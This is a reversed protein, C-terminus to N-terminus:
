EDKEFLVELVKTADPGQHTPQIYHGLTVADTTHGLQEKAADVGMTNRLLTAVAKRFDRPSWEAYDTGSLADRWIRRLNHPWRYTGASSPFVIENYAHVRRRTLINAAPQPLKLTRISRSTKPHGQLKLKGDTGVILTKSITLTTPTADLNVDDWTLALLESTRAGTAAYLDILDAIDSHRPQGRKDTSLDHSRILSRIERVAMPDPATIPKKDAKPLTTSPIPNVPIAGLRVADRFANNLITRIAKASSPGNNDRVLKLFREARPVTVERLLVSGLGKDVINKVANRYVNITSEGLNTANDLYHHVADSVTSNATIDESSPTLRERLAQLVLREAQAHSSGQRQIRRTVGDTDRYRAVAAPKGDITLRTLKGWTELPLPPRPM